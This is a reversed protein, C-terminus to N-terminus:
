LLLKLWIFFMISRYAIITCICEVWCLFCENCSKNKNNLNLKIEHITSERTIMQNNQIGIM